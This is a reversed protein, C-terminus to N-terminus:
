IGLVDLTFNLMDFKDQNTAQLSYEGMDEINLHNIRLITNTSETKIAYKTKKPAEWNGVIEEGKTNLRKFNNLFLINFIIHKVFKKNQNIRNIIKQKFNNGNLFLNQTLMCM